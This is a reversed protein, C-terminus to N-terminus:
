GEKREEKLNFNHFSAFKSLSNGAVEEVVSDRQSKKFSEVENRVNM